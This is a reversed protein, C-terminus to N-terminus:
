LADLLNTVHNIRDNLDKLDEATEQSLDGLEGIEDRAQILVQIQENSGGKEAFYEWAANFYNDDEEAPAETGDAEGGDEDEEFYEDDSEDPLDVEEVAEEPLSATDEKKGCATMSLVTLLAM